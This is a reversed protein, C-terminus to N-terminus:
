IVLVATALCAVLTTAAVWQTPGVRSPGPRELVSAYTADRLAEGSRRSFRMVTPWSPDAVPTSHPALHQHEM